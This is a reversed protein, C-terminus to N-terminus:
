QKRWERWEKADEFNLSVAPELNMLCRQVFLQASSIAQKLRTTMMCPDMEVDILFHEYLESADRWYAGKTMDPHTVLYAVLAARQKERLLDKLPKAVALWQKDDYKAKVANKISRANGLEEATTQNAKGWDSLQRASAGLRKMLNFCAHLQVLAQEDKYASASLGQASDLFELDSLNWETCESLATLLETKTTTSNAAREFISFIQIKSAPLSDRFHFLDVLREWAAFLL